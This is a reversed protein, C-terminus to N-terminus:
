SGPVVGLLGSQCLVALTVERAGSIVCFDEQPLGNTVVFLGM